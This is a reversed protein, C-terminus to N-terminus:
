ANISRWINLIFDRMGTLYDVWWFWSDLGWLMRCHPSSLCPWMLAIIYCTSIIALRVLAWWFWEKLKRDRAHSKVKRPGGLRKVKDNGKPPQLTEIEVGVAYITIPSRVGKFRYLGVCAFRTGKPTYRNARGKIVNYADSTLLVQGARCISMTRAAINKAVGELEVEKAGVLTYRDDQKVEAIHGWHIGIRCGLHTKPPITGQYWLAFNLAEVASEFSLMFGDSRDIERGNFRYLLSRTLRDHYQLWRAAKAAGVKQVFATSGILDLLVITLKREQIHVMLSAGKESM